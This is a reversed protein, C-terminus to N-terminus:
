AHRSLFGELAETFVAEHDISSLHGAGEILLLEARPIQQCMARLADAPAGPDETGGVILTPCAIRALAARTDLGMIAECCAVYGQVSTREFDAELAALADPHAKRYASPFWRELSPRALAAVGEKQARLIRQEWLPLAPPPMYATTNALVLGAVREPSAIALTQGIMGGISIGVFHARDAGVADLLGRVDAALRELSGPQAGAESDGHGALDYALVRFCASLADIQRRWMHRTCGLSHSFVVWPGSEGQVEYALRVGEVLVSTGSM